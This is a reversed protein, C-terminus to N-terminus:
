GLQEPLNVDSDNRLQTTQGIADTYVDHKYGLLHFETQTCLGSSQPLFREAWISIGADIMMVATHIM